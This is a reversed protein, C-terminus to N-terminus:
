ANPTDDHQMEYVVSGYNEKQHKELWQEFYILDARGVTTYSLWEHELSDFITNISPNITQLYSKLEEFATERKEFIMLQLLIEAIKENDIEDALKHRERERKM